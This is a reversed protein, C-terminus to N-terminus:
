FSHVWREGIERRFDGLRPNTSAFPLECCRIANALRLQPKIVDLIAVQMYFVVGMVPKRRVWREIQPRIREIHPETFGHVQDRPSKSSDAILFPNIEWFRFSMDIALMGPATCATLQDAARKITQEPRTTTLRKAEIPFWTGNLSANMDPSPGDSSSPVLMPNLGARRLRAALFLEFLTDRGPSQASRPELPDQTLAARLKNAAVPDTESFVIADSARDLELAAIAHRVSLRRRDFGGEGQVSQLIASGAEYERVAGRL